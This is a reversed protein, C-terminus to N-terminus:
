MGEAEVLRRVAENYTALTREVVRLAKHLEVSQATSSCPWNYEKCLRVHTKVADMHNKQASEMVSHAQVYKDGV